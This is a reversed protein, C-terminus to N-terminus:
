TPYKFFNRVLNKAQGSSNQNAIVSYLRKKIVGFYKFVKSKDNKLLYHSQLYSINNKDIFSLLQYNAKGGDKIARKVM